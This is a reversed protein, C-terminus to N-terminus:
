EIDGQWGDEVERLREAAEKRKVAAEEDITIQLGANEEIEITGHNSIVGIKTQKSELTVQVSEDNLSLTTLEDLSVNSAGVLVMKVSGKKPDYHISDILAEFEM